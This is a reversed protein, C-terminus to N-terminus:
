FQICKEKLFADWSIMTFQGRSLSVSHSTKQKPVPPLHHPISVKSAAPLVVPKQPADKAVIRVEDSENRRSNDPSAAKKEGTDVGKRPVPQEAQVLADVTLPLKDPARELYEWYDNGYDVLLQSGQPITKKAIYFIHPGDEGFYIKDEVNAESGKTSGHNVFRIWSGKKAADIAYGGLIRDQPPFDYLYTKDKMRKSCVIEGIYEGIITDRLIKKKTFAGLGWKGGLARIEIDPHCANTTSAHTNFYNTVRTAWRGTLKKTHAEKYAPLVQKAFATSRIRNSNIVEVDSPLALESRFTRAAIDVIKKKHSKKKSSATAVPQDVVVKRTISKTSGEDLAEKRLIARLFTDGRGASGLRKSRKPQALKDRSLEAENCSDETSQEELEALEDSLAEDANSSEATSEEQNGSVREADPTRSREGKFTRQAVDDMKKQRSLTKGRTFTDDVAEKRLVARLSTNETAIRQSRRLKVGDDSPAHDKHYDASHYRHSNRVTM